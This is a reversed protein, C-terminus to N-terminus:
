PGPEGARAQAIVGLTAVEALLQRVSRIGFKKLISNRHQEVTRHSLALERAIEKASLGRATYAFVEQERRTLSEYVSAFRTSVSERSLDRVLSLAVQRGQVDQLPTVTNESPFCAGDARRMWMRTHLPAGRALKPAGIEGFEHFTDADLHLKATSHGLLESAPYGFMAEAQQNCALITRSGHEVLFAAERISDLLAILLRTEVPEGTLGRDNVFPWVVPM